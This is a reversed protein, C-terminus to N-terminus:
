ARYAAMSKHVIFPNLPTLISWAESDYRIIIILILDCILNDSSVNLYFFHLFNLASKSKFYQKSWLVMNFKVHELRQNAPSSPGIQYANCIKVILSYYSSINQKAWRRHHWLPHADLLRYGGRNFYQVTPHGDMIFGDFIPLVFFRM